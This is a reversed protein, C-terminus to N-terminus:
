LHDNYRPIQSMENKAPGSLMIIDKLLQPDIIVPSEPQHKKQLTDLRKKIYIDDDRIQM